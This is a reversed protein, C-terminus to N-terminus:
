ENEDGSTLRFVPNDDEDWVVVEGSFGKDESCEKAFAVAEELGNFEEINIGDVVTYM